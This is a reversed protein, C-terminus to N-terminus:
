GSNNFDKLFICFKKLKTQYNKVDSQLFNLSGQFVTHPSMINSMQNLSPSLENSCDTHIHEKELESTKVQIPIKKSKPSEKTSSSSLKEM